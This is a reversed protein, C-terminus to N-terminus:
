KPISRRLHSLAVHPGAVVARFRDISDTSNTRVRSVRFRDERRAFGHNFLLACGYDLERLIAATSSTYNGNPYAFLKPALGLKSEFWSHARKIQAEQEEPPCKDLLPHDWTHNGVSGGSAVFDALADVTLQPRSLMLGARTLQAALKGVIERRAEDPSLKLRGVPDSGLALSNPILAEDHAASVIQWWYPESTEVVAPCIFLTPVIGLSAMVPAGSSLVTPDGDDFTVWVAKPPLENSGGIWALAQDASIPSYNGALHRMQAAFGAADEIGHYALIRLRNRTVRRGITTIPRSGLTVDTIRRLTARM